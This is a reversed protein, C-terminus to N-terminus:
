EDLTLTAERAQWGAQQNLIRETIRVQQPGIETVQGYDTGLYSGERVSTVSGDPASILAVQQGGMRLTGVLRLSQLAFRELPEAERQQDPALASDFVTAVEPAEVREPALFPSRTDSYRYDVPQYAPITPIVVPSQGSPARRIEEMVAALQDLDADSCGVLLAAVGIGFLRKM